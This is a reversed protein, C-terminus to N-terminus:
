IRLIFALIGPHSDFNSPEREHKSNYYKVGSRTLKKKTAPLRTTAKDMLVIYERQSFPKRLLCMLKEKFESDPKEMIHTPWVVGVGRLEQSVIFKDHNMLTKFTLIIIKFARMIIVLVM